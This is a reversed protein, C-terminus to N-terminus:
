PKDYGDNAPSIILTQNGPDSRLAPNNILGEVRAPIEPVGPLDEFKGGMEGRFVHLVVLVRDGNYRDVGACAM